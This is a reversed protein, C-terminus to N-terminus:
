LRHPTGNDPRSIWAMSVGMGSYEEMKTTLDKWPHGESRVEVALSAPEDFYRNPAPGTWSPNLFFLIDAGRVTDPDLETIVEVDNGLVCGRGISTEYSKLLYVVNGCVEGHRGRTPPMQVLEGRVLEFGDTERGTNAFEEATMLTKTPM